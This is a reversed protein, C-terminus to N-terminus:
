GLTKNNCTSLITKHCGPYIVTSIENKPYWFNLDEVRDPRPKITLSFVLKYYSKNEVSFQMITEHIESEDGDDGEDRDNTDSGEGQDDGAKMEGSATPHDDQSLEADLEQALNFKTDSDNSHTEEHDAVGRKDDRNASEVNKSADWTNGQQEGEEFGPLEAANPNFDGKIDTTEGEANDDEDDDDFCIERADDLNNDQPELDDVSDERTISNEHTPTEKVPTEHNEDHGFGDVDAIKGGDHAPVDDYQDCVVNLLHVAKEDSSMSSDHNDSCFSGMHKVRPSLLNSGDLNIRVEKTKPTDASQMQEPISQVKLLQHTITQNYTGTPRSPFTYTMLRRIRFVFTDEKSETHVTNQRVTKGIIYPTTESM